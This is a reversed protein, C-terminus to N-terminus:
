KSTEGYSEINFQEGNTRKKVFILIGTWRYRAAFWKRKKGDLFEEPKLKLIGIAPDAIVVKEKSREYVVVYHMAKSKLQVLAICPLVYNEFFADREGKVAEALFGFREMTEVMKALSTGKKKDVGAMYCLSEYSVTCNYFNLIMLLCAIGCDTRRRQRILTVMIGDLVGNVAM